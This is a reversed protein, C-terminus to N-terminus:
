FPTTLLIFSFHSTNIPILLPQSPSLPSHIHGSPTCTGGPVTGLWMSCYRTVPQLPKVARKSVTNRHKIVFLLLTNHTVHSWCVSMVWAVQGRRRVMWECVSFCKELLLTWGGKFDNMRQSFSM